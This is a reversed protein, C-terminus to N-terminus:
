RSANLIFDREGEDVFYSNNNTPSTTL